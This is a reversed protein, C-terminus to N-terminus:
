NDVENHSLLSSSIASMRPWVRAREPAVAFHVCSVCLERLLWLDGEKDTNELVILHTSAWQQGCDSSCWTVINTGALQEM